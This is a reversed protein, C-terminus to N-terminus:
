NIETEISSDFEDDESDESDQSDQSSSSSRNLSFRRSNDNWQFLKVLHLVPEKRVAQDYDFEVKQLLGDLFHHMMESYGNMNDEEDDEDSDDSSGEDFSMLYPIPSFDLQHDAEDDDRDIMAMFSDLVEQTMDLDQLPEEPIMSAFSPRKDTSQEIVISRTMNLQQHRQSFSRALSPPLAESVSMVSRGDVSVIDELLTGIASRLGEEVRRRSGHVMNYVEGDVALKQIKTKLAIAEFTIASFAYEDQPHAPSLKERHIDVDYTTKLSLNKRASEIGRKINTTAFDEPITEQDLRLLRTICNKRWTKRFPSDFTTWSTTSATRSLDSESLQKVMQEPWNKRKAMYYFYSDPRDKNHARLTSESAVTDGGNSGLSHQQSEWPHSRTVLNNSKPKSDSVSNDEEQLNTSMLLASELVSM